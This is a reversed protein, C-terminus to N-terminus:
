EKTKILLLKGKSYSLTASDNIIENSVGLISTHSLNYKDLEYKFGEMSLDYVDELAFFSYFNYEDKRFYSEKDCLSIFTDNDVMTLNPFEYFLKLNAVFHDIRKGAIGGLVILSDYDAFMKLAYLTDTDDKIPNLKIVNTYEYLEELEQASISDFDGIAYDLKIGTKYALYAGKDIGVVIKNSFDYNTIDFNNGINFCVDM